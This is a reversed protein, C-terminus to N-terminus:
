RRFARYLGPRSSDGSGPEAAGFRFRRGSYERAGTSFTRAMRFSSWVQEPFFIRGTRSRLMAPAPTGETEVSPLSMLRSPRKKRGSVFNCRFREFDARLAWSRLRFGAPNFAAPGFRRCAHRTTPYSM